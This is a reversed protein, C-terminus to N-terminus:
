ELQRWSQRGTATTGTNLQIADVDGSSGSGFAIDRDADSLVSLTPVIGINSMRGSADGDQNDFVGDGNLDFAPFSLKGGTRFDLQMVFSSGGFDCAQQSPILTTFIVRRDRVVANSVQREGFNFTNPSGEIQQPLLTFQWGLQTEFDIEYDSVERLINNTDSIGDEDTDFSAAFQNLVSQQLLDSSDFVTLSSLNKDWIGYFSQTAQGSSSNDGVELYKGTGFYVMFGEEGDPHLSIQPQTSIPQNNETTFLPIPVSGQKYAVDWQGANNSTVNFKWLNGSLDGAYIYDVVLDNNQDVLVPTALGNPTGVSGQLTDLKRILNGTELDVIFLVARGTTSAQGDAETNNYGNGFVAAWRGNAMKAIQPRSYTFGIDPDDSDDFEWLVTQDANAETFLSPDSVDLAFVAQGGGSLGSVLVSKWGGVGGSISDTKGPLYADVINPGGDVFFNHVYTPQSLEALNRYVANPVYALLERGDNEAFGHLMGDNAGVYVMKQRNAFHERFQAYSKPAITEPYRFSPIGVFRPDSNVIDGLVSGRQRFGFGTSENSRQGRFYDTVAQGYQQNAAIGAVSTTDPPYPAFELLHEIQQASMENLSDPQTHNAPWRFPIGQGEPEGGPIVDADPNYTIIRRQLDPNQSNIVSGANWTANPALTGDPNIAFALLQGSWDASDFRAQYLFSGASLTGSNTAVSASSSVRDAINGLAEGIADVVETPTQAAVYLGKSNFAAHWLDDIKEPDSNFPDGWNDNEALAPDPWGDNNTDVLLGQVGFAVTFTVMHQQNNNDLISTPVQNPLPSLDQNYYFSAVDALTRSKGDGDTDGILAAPAAGNWFGDSLLLSFNQQCASIIPDALGLDNDFYRGVRELGRRLPTGLAAWTYSYLSELLQNNHALYDTDAASPVEVFLTAFQNIVSLGFRFSPSASIVEAIAGKAVFSRRRSYEYWNAINQRIEAPTRGYEDVSTGSIVTTNETTGFCDSFPVPLAPSGLTCDNLGQMIGADATTLERRVIDTAGVTYVVRSDWLDVLGNPINSATDPGAPNSGNFGHDDIAVEYVFGTLDRFETHGQSGPQPNSRAATFSAAPKGPWPQYSIAPNYYQLNFGSSRVRWDRMLAEPQLEAVPFTCTDHVNDPENYLLAYSRRGTCTGTGSFTLWLGDTNTAVGGDQWYNLYYEHAQTLIEWDMSGSDDVMLFINPDVSVGLFLPSRSLTLPAGHSNVGISLGAVTLLWSLLLRIHTSIEM